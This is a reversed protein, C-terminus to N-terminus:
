HLHLPKRQKPLGEGAVKEGALANKVEECPQYLSGEWSSFLSVEKRVRFKKQEIRGRLRSGEREIQFSGRGRETSQLM